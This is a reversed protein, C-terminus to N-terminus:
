GLHLNLITTAYCYVHGWLPRNNSIIKGFFGSTTFCTLAFQALNYKLPLWPVSCLPVPAKPCMLRSLYAQQSSINCTHSQEPCRLIALCQTLLIVRTVFSSIYFLVFTVKIALKLVYRKHIIVIILWPIRSYVVLLM